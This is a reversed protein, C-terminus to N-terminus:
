AGRRPIRNGERQRRVTCDNQRASLQQNVLVQVDIAGARIQQSHLAAGRVARSIEADEFCRPTKRLGDM